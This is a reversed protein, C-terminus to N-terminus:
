MSSESLRSLRLFDPRWCGSAGQVLRVLIKFQASPIKPEMSIERGHVSSAFAERSEIQLVPVGM